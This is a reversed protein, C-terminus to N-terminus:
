CSRVRTLDDRSMQRLPTSSTCKEEIQWMLAAVPRRSKQYERLDRLKLIIRGGIWLAALLLIAGSIHEMRLLVRPSFKGHGKSVAWSLLVFWLTAGWAVGIVFGIRDDLTQDVWNHSLFTATLTLWLLLVSPNGLVRVFGVGFATRPHIKQEIVDASHVHDPITKASFYKWSLFLLFLFSLLEMSSKVLPLHLFAAFGTLAIGCYISEMLVSGLGIMLAWKFGRRAGENIITLNIPGVPISVFFGSVMGTVIATLTNDLEIM